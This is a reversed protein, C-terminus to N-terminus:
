IELDAPVEFRRPILQSDVFRDGARHAFTPFPVPTVTGDHGVVLIDDVVPLFARTGRTWASISVVQGDARQMVQVEPFEGPTHALARSQRNYLAADFRHRASRYLPHQLVKEPWAAPEWADHQSELPDLSILPADPGIARDAVDIAALLGDMDESGTLVTATRSIPVLVLAGRVQFRLLFNPDFLASGIIQEDGLLYTGERLQTLQTFDRGFSREHAARLVAPMEVGWRQLDRFALDILGENVQVAAGLGVRGPLWGVYAAAPLLGQAWLEKERVYWATEGWVRLVLSDRAQEFTGPLDVRETM